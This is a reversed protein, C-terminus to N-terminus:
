SRRGGIARRVTSAHGPIKFTSRDKTSAGASASALAFLLAGAAFPLSVVMKSSVSLHAIHISSHLRGMVTAGRCRGPKNGARDCLIDQGGGGGAAVRCAGQWCLKQRPQKLLHAACPLFVHGVQRCGKGAFHAALGRMLVASVDAMRMALSPSRGAVCRATATRERM